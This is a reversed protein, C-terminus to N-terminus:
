DEDEEEDESEAAWWLDIRYSELVQRHAAFVEESDFQGEPTGLQALLSNQQAEAAERGKWSVRGEYLGPRPLDFCGAIHPTFARIVVSGTPTDLVVAREDEAAWAPDAPVPGDWVHVLIEAPATGQLSYLYIQTGTGAVVNEMSAVLADSNPVTADSDYVEITGNDPRAETRFEFLVPM